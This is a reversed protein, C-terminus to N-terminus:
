VGLKTKFTAILEDLEDVPMFIYNIRAKLADDIAPYDSLKIKNTEAKISEIYKAITEDRNKGLEIKGLCYTIICVFHVEYNKLTNDIYAEAIKQLEPELFDEYKYLNLEDRHHNFTDLISALSKKFAAKFGSTYTKAEGLYLIYNKEDKKIHIADAGNREMEPNTTLKMKRIIPVAKFHYNLLNFLLLESFQGQVSSPRFKDKARQHLVAHADEPERDKSELSLIKSQQNKSYVYRTVSAIMERIFENRLQNLDVYDICTVLHKKKPEVTLDLSVYHMTRMFADMKPLLAEIDIEKTSKVTMIKLTKDRGWLDTAM